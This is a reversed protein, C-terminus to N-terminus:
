GASGACTKMRWVACFPQVSRGAEGAATSRTPSAWRYVTSRFGRAPREIGLESAVAIARGRSRFAATVIGTADNTATVEVGPILAASTDAVTGGLRANQSQSWANTPAAFLLLLAVAAAPFRPM